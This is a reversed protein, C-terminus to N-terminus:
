LSLTAIAALFNRLNTGSLKELNNCDEFTDIKNERFVNARQFCNFALAKIIGNWSAVPLQLAPLVPIYPLDEAQDFSKIIVRLLNM